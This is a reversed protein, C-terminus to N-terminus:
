YIQLIAIQSWLCLRLASFKTFSIWITNALHLHGHHYIDHNLSAFYVPWINWNNSCNFFLVFCFLFWSLMDLPCIYVFIRTTKRKKHWMFVYSIWMFWVASIKPQIRFLAHLFLPKIFSNNTHLIYSVVRINARKHSTQKLSVVVNTLYLHFEVLASHM